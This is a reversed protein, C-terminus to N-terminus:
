PQEEHNDGRARSVRARAERMQEVVRRAMALKAEPVAIGAEHDAILNLAGIQL